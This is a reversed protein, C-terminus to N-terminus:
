QAGILADFWRAITPIHIDSAGEDELRTLKGGEGVMKRKWLPLAAAVPGRLRFKTKVLRRKGGKSRWANAVHKTWKTAIKIVPIM